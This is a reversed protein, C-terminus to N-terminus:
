SRGGFFSKNFMCKQSINDSCFLEIWKWKFLTFFNSCFLEIWKWKFLTFFNSHVSISNELRFTYIRCDTFHSSYGEKERKRKKVKKNKERKDM